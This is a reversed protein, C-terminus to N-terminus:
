YNVHTHIIMEIPITLSSVGAYKRSSSHALWHVLRNVVTYINEEGIHVTGWVICCDITSHELLTDVTDCVMPHPIPYDIFM